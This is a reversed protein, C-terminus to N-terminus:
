KDNAPPHDAVQQMAYPFLLHGFMWGEILPVADTDPESRPPQNEM